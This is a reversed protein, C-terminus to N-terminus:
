SVKARSERKGAFEATVDQTAEHIIAPTHNINSFDRLGRQLLMRRKKRAGMQPPSLIHVELIFLM